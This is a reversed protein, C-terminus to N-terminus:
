GRSEIELAVKLGPTVALAKGITRRHCVGGAIRHTGQKHWSSWHEM